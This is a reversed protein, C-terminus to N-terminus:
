LDQELLLYGEGQNSEVQIRSVGDQEQVLYDAGFGTLLRIPGTTIFEFESNVAGDPTLSVGCNTFIGNIEYYIQDGYEEGTGRPIISLKASFTAGLQQRNILQYIYFPTELAELDYSFLASIRGNGTILSSYMERYADGLATVDVNERTTNLEWATTQGLLRPTVNQVTYTIPVTSAPVVLAIRGTTGGDIAQAFNRYLYIGGITDVHVFFTGQEHVTADDWASADIFSLPSGDTTSFQVLDGTILTGETFDFSFRDKLASVDAPAVNATLAVGLSTRTLEVQGYLGLYVTM